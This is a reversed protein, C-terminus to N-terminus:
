RGARAGLRPRRLGRERQSAERAHHDERPGRAQPPAPRVDRGERPPVRLQVGRGPVPHAHRRLRVGTEQHRRHREEAPPHHGRGPAAASDAPLYELPKTEHGFPPRKQEPDWLWVEILGPEYKTSGAKKRVPMLAEEPSCGAQTAVARVRRRAERTWDIGGRRTYPGGPTRLVGAPVGELLGELPGRGAPRRAQRAPRHDPRREGGPKASFFVTVRSGDELRVRWYRRKETRSTSPAEAFAVGDISDAAAGAPLRALWADLAEDMTIPLTRTATAEFEGSQRQGTERRGIHREYEVTVSQSWWSPVGYDGQLLRAIDKHPLDRAGREDLIAFWDGFAKGTAAIAKSDDM